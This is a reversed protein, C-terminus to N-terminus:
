AKRLPDGIVGKLRLAEIAEATFGAERLIEETHEGLRPAPTNIRGADHALEFSSGVLTHRGGPSDVQQLV